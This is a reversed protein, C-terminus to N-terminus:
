IFQFYLSWGLQMLLMILAYIRIRKDKFAQIFIEFCRILRLKTKKRPVFTEQFTVLMCLANLFALAAAFIFPTMYNFWPITESHAFYGGCIPGAVFGISMALSILGFNRAKNEPTSIDAIAAQAIPQSGATIGALIRGLLLLGVSKVAVGFAAIGYGITTGLLSLVLMKKRGFHDSFDGAIPAGIFLSIEFVSITLGYYVNRLLPSTAAPLIGNHVDLFIPGLLPFVLGFGMVDIILLLFLSAFTALHSPRM